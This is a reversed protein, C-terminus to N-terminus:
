LGAIPQRSKFFFDVLVTMKTEGLLANITNYIPISDIISIKSM